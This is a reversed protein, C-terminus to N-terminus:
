LFIFYLIIIVVIIGIIWTWKNMTDGIFMKIYSLLKYTFFFITKPPSLPIRGGILNKM